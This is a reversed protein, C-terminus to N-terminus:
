AMELKIRKPESGEGSGLGAQAANRTVGGQSAGSSVADAANSPEMQAHAGPGAAPAGDATPPPPPFKKILESLLSDVRIRQFATSRQQQEAAAAQQQEQQRLEQQKAEKTPNVPKRQKGKFEWYYGKAASYKRCLLAEEFSTRLHDLASLVRSNIVSCLDPAQYATGGIIYYDALPSVQMPSHRIQKRIVFLPELAHLVVYETGKMNVLQDMSMRQMKLVENNCNREYFPNSSNAFYDLVTASSLMNPNWQSNHWSVHLLSEPGQPEPISPPAQHPRFPQPSPAVAIPSMPPMSAPGMGGMPSVPNMMPPMSMMPHHPNM